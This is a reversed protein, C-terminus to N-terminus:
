ESKIEQYTFDLTVTVAEAINQLLLKPIKVKYDKLKIPFEAKLVLGEKTSQLTGNVEVEKSVGHLKMTGKAVVEQADDKSIDFGSVTGSFTATPYKESEMYNENFHEQMLKKSFKFKKIPISFAIQNSSHDYLTRAEKNDAAIDELMAASFFKVFSEKGEFKQANSILISFVVFLVSLILKRM